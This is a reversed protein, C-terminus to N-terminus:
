FVRPALKILNERREKRMHAIEHRTHRKGDASEAFSAADVEAIDARASAFLAFTVM